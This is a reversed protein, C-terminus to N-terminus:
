CGRPIAGADGAVVAAPTPTQRCKERWCWWWWWRWTASQPSSVADAMGRIRIKCEPAAERADCGGRSRGRALGGGGVKIDPEKGRRWRQGGAFVHCFVGRRRVSGGDRGVTASSSGMACCVEGDQGPLGTKARESGRPLPGKSWATMSEQDLNFLYGPPHTRWLPQLLHVAIFVAMISCGEDRITHIGLHAFLPPSRPMKLGIGGEERFEGRCNSSLAGEGWTKANCWFKPCSAVYGPLWSGDCQHLHSAKGRERWSVSGKRAGLWLSHSSANTYSLM